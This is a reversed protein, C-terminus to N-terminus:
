ITMRKGTERRPWFRMKETQNNQDDLEDSSSHEASHFDEPNTNTGNNSKLAQTLAAIRSLDADGQIPLRRPNLRGRRWSSYTLRQIL